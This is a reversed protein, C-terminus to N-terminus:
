HTAMSPKGMTFAPGYHIAAGMVGAGDMGVYTLHYPTGISMM